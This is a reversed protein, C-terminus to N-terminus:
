SCQGQASGVEPCPFGELLGAIADRGKQMKKRIRESVDFDPSEPLNPLSSRYMQALDLPTFGNADKITMDAGALLLGRAVIYNAYIVAIHLATYNGSSFVMDLQRQSPDFHSLVRDLIMGCASM